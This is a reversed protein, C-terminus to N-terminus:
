FYKAARALSGPEMTALVWMHLFTVELELELPCGVHKGSSPLFWASVQTAYMHPPLASVCM